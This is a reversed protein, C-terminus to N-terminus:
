IIFKINDDINLNDCSYKLFFSLRMFFNIYLRKLLQMNISAKFRKNRKTFLNSAIYYRVFVIKYIFSM